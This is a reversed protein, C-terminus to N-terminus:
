TPEPLALALPEANKAAFPNLFRVGGLVRSASSLGCAPMQPPRVTLVSPAIM